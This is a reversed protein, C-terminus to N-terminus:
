EEEEVETFPIWRCPNDTRVMGTRKRIANPHLTALGLAEALSLVMLCKWCVDIEPQFALGDPLPERKEAGYDDMIRQDCLQCTRVIYITM